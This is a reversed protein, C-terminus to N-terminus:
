RGVATSYKTIDENVIQRKTTAAARDSGGGHDKRERARESPTSEVTDTHTGKINKYKAKRSRWETNIIHM